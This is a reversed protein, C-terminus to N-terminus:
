EVTRVPRLGIAQGRANPSIRFAAQNVSAVTCHRGEYAYAGGRALGIHGDPGGTTPGAGVPWRGNDWPEWVWEEVNGLGDFIGFRNPFKLGAPHIGCTEAPHQMDDWRADVGGEYAVGCNGGYWAIGDLVPVNYPRWVVLDGAYTAAPAGGRVALEWEPGTPIRYGNCAYGERWDVPWGDVAAEEDYLAGSFHHRYCPQLGESLSLLNCYAAAAYWSVQSAPCDLGCAVFTEPDALSMMAAWQAKTVETAKVLFAHELVVARQGEKSPDHGVEEGPCGEECRPDLCAGPGCRCGEACEPGPSGMIFAKPCVYVWQEEVPAEPNVTGSECCAYGEDAEGDCDNDLDDCEEDVPAVAGICRVAGNACVMEGANCEGVDTGCADGLDADAPEEDIEGDCDNDRGDCFEQSPEVGGECPGWQGNPLCFRWGPHCVGLAAADVCEDEMGPMCEDERCVCTGEPGREGQPGRAAEAFGPDAALQEVLTARLAPESLLAAVLAGRLDEDELLAAAIDAAVPSAGPQGPAGPEGQVGPDGTDGREGPQGPDGPDGPDGPEGQRGPDGPGGPEGKEGRVGQEGDDGQSGPLGQAGPPGKDGACAALLTTLTVLAGVRALATARGLAAVGVKHDMAFM